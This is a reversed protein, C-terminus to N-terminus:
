GGGDGAAVGGAADGAADDDDDDTDHIADPPVGAMTSVRGRCRSVEHPTRRATVPRPPMELCARPLALVESSDM